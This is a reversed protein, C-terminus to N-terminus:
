NAGIAEGFLLVAQDGAPPLAAWIERAATDADLVGRRTALSDALAPAAPYVDPSLAADKHAAPTDVFGPRVAVIWQRSGRRAGEARATRVWQEMAAKGAGYVGLAPYALRAAASSVQVLGVEVGASSADRSARLFADGLVLPAMVNATVEAFQETPDGEGVFARRYQFANHIFLARRGSFSALRGAFDTVLADWTEPQTLDIRISRLEPHRSRSVNVVEAGPHPCTRAMAAGIGSTAGTIWIVTDTADAM